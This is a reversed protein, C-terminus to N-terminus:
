SSGLGKGTRRRPRFDVSSSRGSVERSTSFERQTDPLRGPVPRSPVSRTWLPDPGEQRVPPHRGTKGSPGRPLFLPHEPNLLRPRDQSERLSGSPGQSNFTLEKSESDSCRVLRTGTHRRDRDYLGSECLLRSLDRYKFFITKRIGTPVERPEPHSLSFFKNFYRQM